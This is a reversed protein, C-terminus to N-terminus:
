LNNAEYAIRHANAMITFTPSISSASNLVAGDCIYVKSSLSGNSSVDKGGMPFTSAYHSSTNHKLPLIPPVYFNKQGFSKRINNWYWLAENKFNGPIELDLSILRNRGRSFSYKQSHNGDLYIRGWMLRGRLISAIGNFYRWYSVPIFSRWMHDFFPYVQVFANSYKNKRSGAIAIMNTLSFYEQNNVSSLSPGLYFIPFTYVSNDYMSVGSSLGLSDMVLKTTNVCGAAIFVKDFKHNEGNELIIRGTSINVSKVESKILSIKAKSIFHNIDDAASYISKAYCGLMCQGCFTCRNNKAVRTELALRSSGAAIFFDSPLNVANNISLKLSQIVPLNLIPPASIFDNGVIENIKDKSGSIILNESIARYHFDLDKRNIPWDLFESEPYPLVSGGWFNTLGGLSSSKWISGWDKINIKEPALGFYTKPPPFKFGFNSKIEGYLALLYDDTWTIPPTSSSYESNLVNSKEFVTIKEKCGSNHLGRIIGVASAGSGIVAFRRETM